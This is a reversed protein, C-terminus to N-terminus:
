RIKQYENMLKEIVPKNKWFIKLKSREETTGYEWINHIYPIVKNYNRLDYRMEPHAGKTIIHSICRADYHHLPQNTEECYDIKINWAYRYFKYDNAPCPHGFLSRQIKIRVELDIEYYLSIMPEAKVRDRTERYEEVSKIRM